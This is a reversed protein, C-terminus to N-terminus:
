WDREVDRPPVPPRQKRQRRSEREMQDLSNLMPNPMDLQEPPPNKPPPPTKALQQAIELNHKAQKDEPRAALTRRFWGMAESYRGAKLAVTGRNYWLVPAESRPLKKEIEAYLKAAKDYQGQYYLTDALAQNLLLNGPDEAILQSYISVAEDYRGQSAARGANTYTWYETLSTADVVSTGLFLALVIAVFPMM